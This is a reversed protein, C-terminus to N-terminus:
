ITFVIVDVKSTSDFLRISSHDRKLLEIDRISCYPGSYGYRFDKGSDWAAKIEAATKYTRGYAPTLTAPSLYM